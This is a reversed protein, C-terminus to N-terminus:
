RANINEPLSETFYQFLSIDHPALSWFASEETRVQGLNLRNSYIYQLKGIKNNKILKKIKNIAPHFLLVHGVMLNVNRKKALLVLAKADDVNM